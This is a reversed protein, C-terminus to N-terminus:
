TKHSLDLVYYSMIKYVEGNISYMEQDVYMTRLLYISVCSCGEDELPLTLSVFSGYAQGLYTVKHM